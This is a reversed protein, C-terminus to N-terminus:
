IGKIRCTLNTIMNWKVNGRQKVYSLSVSSVSYISEIKYYCLQM